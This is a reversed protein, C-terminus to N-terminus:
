TRRAFVALSQGSRVCLDEHLEYFPLLEGIRSTYRERPFWDHFFLWGGPKLWKAAAIACDIRARGDVLCADFMVGLSDPTEVYKTFQGPKAPECGHHPFEPKREYLSANSPLVARVRCAWEKCHEISHVAKVRASLWQTSGGSGFEMMTMEPSLLKEIVALEEKGM